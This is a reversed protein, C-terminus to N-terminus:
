GLLLGTLWWGAGASVATLVAGWVMDVAVIWAPWGKLTAWNTMDYTGYAIFGFLAGYGLAPMVSGAALAPMVAFVVVGVVYLAYFVLAVGLRLDRLMLHGIARRYAGRMIVGLWVIDIVLFVAAATVWAVIWVEPASLDM